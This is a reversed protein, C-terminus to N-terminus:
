AFVPPARPASLPPARGRPVITRDAPLPRIVPPQGWIVVIAAPPPLAPGHVAALRKATAVGPIGHDHHDADLLVAHEAERHDHSPLGSSTAVFAALLALARMRNPWRSRMAWSHRPHLMRDFPPM